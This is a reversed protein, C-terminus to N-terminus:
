NSWNLSAIKYGSNTRFFLVKFRDRVESPEGSAANKFALSYSGTVVATLEDDQLFHDISFVLRRERTKAFARKYHRSIKKIGKIRDEEAETMYLSLLGELHGVRFEQAYRNLLMAFKEEASKTAKVKQNSHKNSKVMTPKSSINHKRNNVQEKVDRNDSAAQRLVSPPRKEVVLYSAVWGRLSRSGVSDAEIYSWLGDSSKTLLTVPTDKALIKLISCREAPGTRVRSNDFAVMVQKTLANEGPKVKIFCLSKEESPEKLARTDRQPKKEAVKSVLTDKKQEFGNTNQSFNEYNKSTALTQESRYSKLNADAVDITQRVEGIEDRRTLEKIDQDVLNDGAFSEQQIYDVPTNGIDDEINNFDKEIEDITEQLQNGDSLSIQSGNLIGVGDVADFGSSVGENRNELQAQLEQPDIPLDKNKPRSSAYFIIVLLFSLFGLGILLRRQVDKPNGLVKRLANGRYKLTFNTSTGKSKDPTVVEASAAKNVPAEFSVRSDNQSREKYATYARNVKEARYNLWVEDKAGRDPHFVRMLQRYRKKAAAESSSMRFFSELSDNSILQRDLFEEFRGRVDSDNYRDLLRSSLDLYDSDSDDINFSSYWSLIDSINELLSDDSIGLELCEVLKQQWSL